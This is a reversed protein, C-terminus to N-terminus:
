MIIVSNELFITLNFKILGKSELNDLSHYFSSSSLKKKSSLSKYFKVSNATQDTSILSRVVKQKESHLFSSIENFLLHRVVPKEHKMLMQLMLIEVVSLSGIDLISVDKVQIKGM